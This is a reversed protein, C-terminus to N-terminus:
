PLRERVPDAKGADAPSRLREIHPNGRVRTHTVPTIQTPNGFYARISHITAALVTAYTDVIRADAIHAHWGSTAVPV